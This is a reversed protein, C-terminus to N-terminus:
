IRSNIPMGAEIVLSNIISHLCSNFLLYLQDMLNLYVTNLYEFLYKLRYSLSDQVFHALLLLTDSFISRAHSM